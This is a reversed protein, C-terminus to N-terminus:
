EQALMKFAKGCGRGGSRSVGGASGVELRLLTETQFPSSKHLAPTNHAKNSSM